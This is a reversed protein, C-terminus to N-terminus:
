EYHLLLGASGLAIGERGDQHEVFTSEWFSGSAMGRMFSAAMM